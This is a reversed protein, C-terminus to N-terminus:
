CLLYFHELKSSPSIKVFPEAVDGSKEVGLESCEIIEVVDWNLDISWYVERRAIIPVSECNAVDRGGAPWGYRQRTKLYCICSLTPPLVGYRSTCAIHIMGQQRRTDSALDIAQPANTGIRVIQIFQAHSTTTESTSRKQDPWTLQGVTCAQAGFAEDENVSGFM